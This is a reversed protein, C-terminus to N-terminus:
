MIIKAEVYMGVMTEVRDRSEALHMVEIGSGGVEAGM